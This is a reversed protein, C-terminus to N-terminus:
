ELVGDLLIDLGQASLKKFITIKRLIKNLYVLEEYNQFVPLDKDDLDCHLKMEWGYALFDMVIKPLSNKRYVRDFDENLQEVSFRKTRNGIHNMYEFYLGKDGDNDLFKILYEEDKDLNDLNDLNDVNGSSSSM